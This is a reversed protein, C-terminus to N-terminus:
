PAEAAAAETTEAERPPRPPRSREPLFAEIIAPLSPLGLARGILTASERAWHEMLAESPAEFDQLIRERSRKQDFHSREIRLSYMFRICTKSKLMDGTTRTERSFVYTLKLPEGHPSPFAELVFDLFSAIEACRDFTNDHLGLVLSSFRPRFRELVEEFWDHALDAAARDRIKRWAAEQREHVHLEPLLREMEAIFEDASPRLDPRGRTAQSLLPRLLDAHTADGALLHQLTKGLGYIDAAPSWESHTGRVEPATFEGESDIRGQERGYRALGFDILVPNSSRQDLIINKPCVDRHVIGHAHLFRLARALKLGLNAVLPVTLKGRKHTLSMGEVWQYIEVGLVGSEEAEEPVDAIGIDRLNYIYEAGDEGRLGTLNRLQKLLEATEQFRERDKQSKLRVTRLAFNIGDASFRSVEALAGGGVRERVAPLRIRELAGAFLAERDTEDAPFTRSVGVLWAELIDSQFGSRRHFVGIEELKNLHETVRERTYVLRRSGEFGTNICWHNLLDTAREVLRDPSYANEAACRALAVALPYCPRPKWQNIDEAENLIDRLYDSVGHEYGEALQAKLEEVVHVVDDYHIWNRQDENVHDKLQGLLNKLIFVNGSKRCIEERAERTTHLRDRSFRYILHNLTKERITRIDKPRLLGKLNSGIRELLGPLGILGLYVPAREPDDSRSWHLELRDKLRTGFRPGDGRQFLLQAEDILLLVGDRGMKRAAKRIGDFAEPGPLDDMEGTPLSAGTQSQLRDSFTQWLRRLNVRGTRDTLETCLVPSPIILGLKDAREMLYQALTTKGFRRPAVVAFSSGSKLRDQLSAVHEQPGIPHEDVYVTRVGEPWLLEINGEAPEMDDWTLKKRCGMRVGTDEETVSAGVRLKGTFPWSAPPRVPIKIKFTYGYGEKRKRWDAAPITLETPTPNEWREPWADRLKTDIQYDLRLQLDGPRFRSTLRVPAQVFGYHGDGRNYDVYALPARRGKEDVWDHELDLEIRRQEVPPLATEGGTEKNKAIWGSLMEYTSSAATGVHQEFFRIAEEFHAVVIEREEQDVAAGAREVIQRFVEGDVSNRLGDMREVCALLRDEEVGAQFAEQVWRRHAPDLHDFLRGVRLANEAFNRIYTELQQGPPPPPMERLFEPLVRALEQAGTLCQSVRRRVVPNALRICREVPHFPDPPHREEEEPDIWIWAPLAELVDPSAMLSSIERLDGPSVGVGMLEYTCPGLRPYVADFCAQAEALDTELSAAEPLLNASQRLLRQMRQIARSLRQVGAVTRPADFRASLEEGARSIDARLRDLAEPDPVRLRVIWEELRPDQAPTIDPIEGDAPAPTEAPGEGEAEPGYWGPAEREGADREDAERGDASRDGTEFQIRDIWEAVHRRPDAEARAEEVMQALLQDDFRASVEQVADLIAGAWVEAREAALSQLAPSVTKLERCVATPDMRRCMAAYLPARVSESVPLDAMLELLRFLSVDSQSVDRAFANLAPVAFLNLLEHFEAETLNPDIMGNLIGKQRPTMDAQYKELRFLRWVHRMQHLIEESIRADPPEVRPRWADRLEPPAAALKQTLEANPQSTASPAPPASPRRSVMAQSAPAPFFRYISDLQNEPNQNQTILQFEGTYKKPVTEPLRRDASEVRFVILTDERNYDEGAECFFREGCLGVAPRGKRFPIPLVTLSSGGATIDEFITERWNQLDPDIKRVYGRLNDLMRVYHRNM